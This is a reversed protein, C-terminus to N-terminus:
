EYQIFVYSNGRWKHAISISPTYISLGDKQKPRNIYMYTETFGHAPTEYVNAFFPPIIITGEGFEMAVTIEFHYHRTTMKFFPEIGVTTLRWPPAYLYIQKGPFASSYDDLVQKRLPFYIPMSANLIVGLSNFFCIGSRIQPVTGYKFIYSSYSGGNSVDKNRSYGGAADM